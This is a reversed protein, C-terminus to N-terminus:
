TLITIRTTRNIEIVRFVLAINLIELTRKSLLRFFEVSVPEFFKNLAPPTTDFYLSAAHFTLYRSLTCM